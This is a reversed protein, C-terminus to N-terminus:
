HRPIVVYISAAITAVVVAWEAPLLRAFSTHRRSLPTIQHPPEGPPADATTKGAYPDAITEVLLRAVSARRTAQDAGIAREEVAIKTVTGDALLLAVTGGGHYFWTRKVLNTPVTTVLWKDRHVVSDARFETYKNLLRVVNLAGLGMGLLGILAAPKGYVLLAIVVPVGTVPLLVSFTRRVARDATLTLSAGNDGRDQLVTAMVRRETLAVMAGM